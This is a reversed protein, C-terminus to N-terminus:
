AARVYYTNITYQRGNMLQDSHLNLLKYNDGEDLPAHIVLYAIENWIHHTILDGIQFNPKDSVMNNRRVIYQMLSNTAIHVLM